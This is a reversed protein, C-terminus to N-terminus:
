VIRKTPLTLHTYSVPELYDQTTEPMQSVFWSLEADAAHLLPMWFKGAVTFDQLMRFRRLTNFNSAHISLMQSAGEEDQFTRVLIREILELVNEQLFLKLVSRKPSALCQIGRVLYEFKENNRAGASGSKSSVSAFHDLLFVATKHYHAVSEEDAIRAEM